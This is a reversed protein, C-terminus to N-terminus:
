LASEYQDLPAGLSIGAAGGVGCGIATAAPTGLVTAGGTLLGLGLMTAAGIGAGLSCGITGGAITHRSREILIGGRFIVAEASSQARHLALMAGTEVRPMADTFALNLLQTAWTSLLFAVVVSGFFLRPRMRLRALAGRSNIRMLQTGNSRM